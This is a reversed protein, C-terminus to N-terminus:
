TRGERGDLFPMRLPLRFLLLFFALFLTKAAGFAAVVPGFLASLVAAGTGLVLTIAWHFMATKEVKQASRKAAPAGSRLLAIGSNHKVRSCALFWRPIAKFV